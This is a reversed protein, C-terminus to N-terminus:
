VKPDNYLEKKQLGLNVGHIEEWDDKTYPPSESGSGDSAIEDADLPQADLPPAAERTARKVDGSLEAQKVEKDKSVDNLSEIGEMVFELDDHQDDDDLTGDDAHEVEDRAVQGSSGAGSGKKSSRTKKAANTSIEPGTFAKRKAAIACYGLRLCSVITLLEEMQDRM